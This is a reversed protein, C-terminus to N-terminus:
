RSQGVGLIRLSSFLLIAVLLAISILKGAPGTLVLFWQFGYVWSAVGVVMSPISIWLTRRLSMGLLLGVMAGALAGTWPFPLWIFVPLGWAGFKRVKNLQVEAARKTSDLSKQLFRVRMVSQSVTAVLPLCFLLVSSNWVAMTLITLIPHLGLQQGTLISAMRGGLVSAATVAAVQLMLERHLFWLISLVVFESALFWCGLSFVM